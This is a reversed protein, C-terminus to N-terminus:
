CVGCARTSNPMHKNNDQSITISLQEADGISVQLCDFEKAINAKSMIKSFNKLAAKPMKPWPIGFMRAVGAGNNVLILFPSRSMASIALYMLPASALERIKDKPSDLRIPYTPGDGCVPKGM